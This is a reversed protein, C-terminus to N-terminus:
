RYLLSSYLYIALGNIKIALIRTLSPWSKAQSGVIAARYVLNEVFVM